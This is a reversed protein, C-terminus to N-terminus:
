NSFTFCFITDCILSIFSPSSPTSKIRGKQEGTSQTVAPSGRRGAKKERLESIEGPQKLQLKQKQVHGSSGQNSSSDEAKVLYPVSSLADGWECLHLEATKGAIL